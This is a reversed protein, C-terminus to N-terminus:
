WRRAVQSAPTTVPHQLFLAFFPARRILPLPLQHLPGFAIRLRKAAKVHRGHVSINVFPHPIAGMRLIHSRINEAAPQFGDTAKLPIALGKRSPQEAKGAPRHGIMKTPGPPLHGTGAERADEPFRFRPVRERDPDAASPPRNARLVSAPPSKGNHPARENRCIPQMNPFLPSAALIVNFRARLFPATQDNGARLPDPHQVPPIRRCGQVPRNKERHGARQHSSPSVTLTRSRSARRKRDSLSPSSNNVMSPLALRRSRLLGTLFIRRLSSKKPLPPNKTQVEFSGHFRLPPDTGVSSELPAKGKEM